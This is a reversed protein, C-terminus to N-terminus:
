FRDYSEKKKTQHKSNKLKEVVEAPLNDILMDVPIKSLINKLSDHVKYETERAKNYIYIEAEANENVTLAVEALCGYDNDEAYVNDEAMITYEKPM